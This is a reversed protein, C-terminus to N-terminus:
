INIHDEARTENKLLTQTRAKDTYVKNALSFAFIYILYKAITTM